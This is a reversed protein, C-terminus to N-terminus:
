NGPQDYQRRAPQPQATRYSLSSSSCTLNSFM